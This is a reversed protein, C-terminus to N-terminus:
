QFLQLQVLLELRDRRFAALLGHRRLIMFLAVLYVAAGLLGSVVYGLALLQADGQAAMVLLVMALQLGPALVYRQWFVPVAGGFVALLAVVVGELAQIPTLAILTILLTWSLPGSVLSNGVLSGLGLVAVIFALPLAALTALSAVKLSLWVAAWDGEVMM